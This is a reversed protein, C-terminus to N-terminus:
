DLAFFSRRCLSAEQYGLIGIKESGEECGYACLRFDQIAHNKLYSKPFKLIYNHETASDLDTKQIRWVYHTATGDKSQVKTPGSVSSGDASVVDFGKGEDIEEYTDENKVEVTVYVFSSTTSDDTVYFEINEKSAFDEQQSDTDIDAYIYQKESNGDSITYGNTIEPQPGEVGARLAAIFTNIYLKTEFVTLGPRHGLGTYTVNGKNYVYYNNAADNPSSDYWGPNSQTHSDDALAYWCIVTPDEVNLQYSQGHTEATMYKEEYGKQATIKSEKSLDYPYKTIQGDNVKSVYNTRYGAAIESWSKNTTNLNSYLNVYPGWFEKGSEEMKQNNIKRRDNDNSGGIVWSRRSNSYQMLATYTFGYFLEDTRMKNAHVTYYNSSFDTVAKVNQKYRNLGMSDRLYKNFGKGTVPDQLLTNGCYSLNTNNIEHNSPSTLDHSYMVSHGATIYKQVAEAASKNMEQGRYTDAFGFVIMDYYDGITDKTIKVGSYCDESKWGGTSCFQELNIVDFSINYDNLVVNKFMNKLNITREYQTGWITGHYQQGSMAQIQLVHVDKKNEKDSYVINGYGIQSSTLYPNNAPYVVVKWTFAGVYNPNMNFSVNVGGDRLKITSKKVRESNKYVGDANKDVYLEVSYNKSYDEVNSVDIHFIFQRSKSDSRFGYTCNNKLADGSFSNGYTITTAANVKEIKATGDANETINTYGSVARSGSEGTTHISEVKVNQRLMTIRSLASYNNEPYSAGSVKVSTDAYKSENADHYDFDSSFIANKYTRIFQYLVNEDIDSFYKSNNYTTGSGVNTTSGGTVDEYLSKAVIVPMGAKLMDVLDEKKIETIDTGSYRLSGSETSAGNSDGAFFAYGNSKDTGIRSSLEPSGYNFAVFSGIHSYIVGNLKKNDTDVGFRTEGKDTTRFGSVDDGIYVMDYDSTLDNKRSVFEATSMGEIEVKLTDGTTFGTYPLMKEISSGTLPFNNLCNSAELELVKYTRGTIYPTFPKYKSITNVSSKMDMFFKGSDHSFACTNKWDGTKATLTIDMKEWYQNDGKERSKDDESIEGKCPLFSYANWYMGAKDASQLKNNGKDDIVVKSSVKSDESKASELFLNYFEAPDRFMSMLYLKYMNNDSAKQNEGAVWDEEKLLSGFVAFNYDSTGDGDKDEYKVDRNLSYQKTTVTTNSQNLADSYVANDFIIPLPDEKQGVRTFIKEVVNWSLDKNNSTFLVTDNSIQGKKKGYSVALERQDGTLYSESIYVLDVKALYEELDSIGDLDEATMTEVVVDEYGAVVNELTSKLANKGGYGVYAFTQNDQFEYRNQSKIATGTTVKTFYQSLDVAEYTEQLEEYETGTVYKTKKCYASGGALAQIQDAKGEACAKFIDIPEDGAQLYGLQAYSVDPVIELIVYDDEDIKDARTATPVSRQKNGVDLIHIGHNNILGGAIIGVLICLGAIGGVLAKWHRKM